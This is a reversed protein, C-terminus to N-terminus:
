RRTRTGCMACRRGGSNVYTCTQCAWDAIDEEDDMDMLTNNMRTRSLFQQLSRRVALDAVNTEHDLQADVNNSAAIRDLMGGALDFARPGVTIELNDELDSKKEQMEEFLIKIMVNSFEKRKEAAAKTLFMIQTQSARIHSRAVIDSIQETMIELEGQFQEFTMQESARRRMQVYRRFGTPKYRFYSIAYSHQLMSRCEVLETFAAHVFSLGKRPLIFDDGTLRVVERVVPALRTCVSEGMKRELRASEAHANWRQYHHLFRNMEKAKKKAARTDYMSTGYTVEMTRPDNVDVNALARGIDTAERPVNEDDM